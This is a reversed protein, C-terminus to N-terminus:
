QAAQEESVALQESHLKQQLLHDSALSASLATRSGPRAPCLEVQLSLCLSSGPQAPVGPKLMKKHSPGLLSPAKVDGVAAFSSVPIGAFM